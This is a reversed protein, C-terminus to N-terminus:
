SLNVETLLVGMKLVRDILGMTTDHSIENLKIKNRNFNCCPFVMILNFLFVFFVAFFLVLTQKNIEQANQLSNRQTLSMLLGDLLIM